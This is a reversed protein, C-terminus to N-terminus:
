PNDKQMELTLKYKDFAGAINVVLPDVKSITLLDMLLWGSNKRFTGLTNDFGEKSILLVSYIDIALQPYNTGQLHTDIFPVYLTLDQGVLAGAELISLGLANTEKYFQLPKTTLFDKFTRLNRIIKRKREDVDTLIVGTDAQKNYIYTKLSEIISPNFKLVMNEIALAPMECCHSMVESFIEIPDYDAELTNIIESYDALHQINFLAEVLETKEYISSIEMPLILHFHLIRDLQKHLCTVFHDQTNQPLDMDEMMLLEIMESEYDPLDFDDMLRFSKKMTDVLDPHFTEQIYAEILLDM